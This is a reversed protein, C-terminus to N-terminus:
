QARQQQMAKVRKFAHKFQRVDDLLWHRQTLPADDLSQPLPVGALSGRCCFARALTPTEIGIYQAFEPLTMLATTM